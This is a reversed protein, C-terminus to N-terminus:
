AERPGAAWLLAMGGVFCSLADMLVCWHPMGSLTGIWWYAPAGALCAWGSFIV